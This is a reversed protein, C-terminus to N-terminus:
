VSIGVSVPFLAVFDDSLSLMRLREVCSQEFM